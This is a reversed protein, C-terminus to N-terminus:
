NNLHCHPCLLRCCTYVSELRDIFFQKLKTNFDVKSYITKIEFNNFNNWARPFASLPFRETQSLRAFPIIFDNLNMNRLGMPVQVQDQDEFRAMVQTWEGSFSKPLLGQKFQQMFQIRFFTVLDDFPLIRTMKFLPETHANYASMTILRVASKQLTVIKKFNNPTTCSWVHIAYILHCHILSYYLFKLSRESLFNRATRIFYLGVSIKKAVSQIHYKFNLSPDMFVGLFKIAPVDCNHTIRQLRFVNLPDRFNENNNDIVINFDHNVVAPSNSFVMFKTKSTHLSLRHARFYTVIKKFETNVFENLLVPDSHKALLKTDDAFLSSFLQSINALDNIYIIFLLPGLISGQPVGLLIERLSSSKGNVVVFQKRGSLYNEFWKLERGQIGINHLKTLLISHDVTDFAKRLDCFIAVCHERDNFARTIYNLFKTLPHITSHEKRFGYQSNSLLNNINLYASLRNHVVRELVKSFTNLLSIPRYNDMISRDGAKFVPVVKAIKLQTPVIGSSLSLSFIHQLPRSLTLAFNSIFDVSIGNVDPTKKKILSYICDTVEGSTLPDSAFSFLPINPDFVTRDPPRDTPVIDQAIKVAVNSFFENFHNAMQLPDTISVNDVLINQVSNSKDNSKKIVEHLVQWTKKLNSRFKSFLKDYHLKKALRIVKNYINRYSKFKSVNTPSPNKLSVKCLRIKERRSVLIGNSMWNELPHYNRNLKVTVNPFYIDYLALFTDSFYNYSEQASDSNTVFDWNINRLAEGFLAMNNQSFNRGTYTKSGNNKSPSKRFHIVPFHDSIKTMLVVADCSHVSNNTVVHDILSASHPTIRTPNTVLQLFGYSFLLDVYETVYKDAGYKLVDLNFDGMLYVTHNMNLIESCLNSLMDSFESYLDNATLNPHATGPRYLSGVIVKSNKNISVEVFITELIRDAFLSLGDLVTYQFKDKLFIGVGGGQVNNRRLSYILAHYGKLKFNVDAPFQWLEQLCIIDPACNNLSMLSIFESFETFKAPLSQINLTLMTFDPCNKFNSHYTYEDLYM